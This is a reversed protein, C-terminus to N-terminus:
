GWVETDYRYQLEGNVIQFEIGKGSPVLSKKAMEAWTIKNSSVEYKGVYFTLANPITYLITKYSADETDLKIGSGYLAPFNTSDAWNHFFVAGTKTFLTQISNGYMSNVKIVNNVAEQKAIEKWGNWSGEVKVRYYIVSATMGIWLQSIYTDNNCHVTTIVFGWEWTNTVPTNKNAGGSVNFISNYNLNNLDGTYEKTKGNVDAFRNLATAINRNESDNIASNATNASEASGASVAYKVSKDKDATNNVNGLGIDEASLNDLKDVVENISEVLNDKNVTVLEGLNGIQAQLNGAPDEELKEKIDTFWENFQATFQNFLADTTIIDVLGKVFGCVEEDPRKDTINSNSISASGVPIRIKALALDYYNGDRRINTENELYVISIERLALDKRLVVLDYRDVTFTNVPITINLEESNNYWYGNIFGWGPNVKINMGAVSEVQLQNSDQIFVGNGIFLKFYNAFQEAYYLRDYEETEENLRAEFFGSTEAM